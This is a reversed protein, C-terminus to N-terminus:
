RWNRGEQDAVASGDTVVSTRAEEKLIPSCRAKLRLCGVMLRLPMPTLTGRGGRFRSSSRFYVQSRTFQESHDPTGGASTASSKPMGAMTRVTGSDEANRSVM